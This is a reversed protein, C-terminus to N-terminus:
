HHHKNISVVLSYIDNFLDIDQMGSVIEGLHFAGDRECLYVLHDSLLFMIQMM